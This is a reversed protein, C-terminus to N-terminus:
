RLSARFEPDAVSGFVFGAAILQKIVDELEGLTRPHIEHMLIIGGKRARAASLVHGVYDDRYEPLVGCSLAEKVDVKGSREFAWDCSDIHWGVIQYGRRHVLANTACTSNGYPYRFLKSPNQSSLVADDRMVEETQDAESIDHFNPHSWSHNAVVLHGAARVKAVLDPYEAAKKGIMFFTAPIGYKALVKLIHETGGPVPGDDFTLAIRNIPPATAIDSEYKCSRELDGPETTLRVVLRKLHHHRSRAIEEAAAGASAPVPQTEVPTAGNGACAASAAIWMAAAMVIRSHSITLLFSPM